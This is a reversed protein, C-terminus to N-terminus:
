AAAYRVSEEHFYRRVLDPSQRRKVLYRRVTRMMQPLNHPRRKGVANSKVDQNLMEDPNLEPSYGPLFFMEIRDTHNALWERVKKSRHVPHRDVILFVQRPTSEKLLRRLFRLFVPATFRSKFVLFALHGRNTIASLMNMHFRKGTGSTTPTSGKPAYSRGAQHDSRIGMADGWYIRAKERRARWRIEPYEKTLWRTVAEPNREYAVRKPKRPTFNWRKLYRRVSRGSLEIGFERRILLRVADSTWLYFPLKLQEPHRDRILNCIKAAQWGKLKARPSKPGRKKVALSAKGGTRHTKMWKGVAQRTIGFVEAADIQTMGDLVAEVARYRLAAQAEPALSRADKIM